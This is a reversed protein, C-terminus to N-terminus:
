ESSGRANEESQEYAKPEFGVKRTATVAKDALKPGFRLDGATEPDALALIRM